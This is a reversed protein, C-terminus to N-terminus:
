HTPMVIDTARNVVYMTPLLYNRGKYVMVEGSLTFTVSEGGAPPTDLAADIAALNQCPLLIMPPETHGSAGGDLRAALRGDDTRVIRARRNTLFGALAIRNDPEPAESTSTAAAPSTGAALDSARPRAPGVAKDLEAIIQDISPNAPSPPTPAPSPETPAPALSPAAATAPTTPPAPRDVMPPMSPLLYNRDRYVTVRGAIRYRTGEPLREVSREMAALNSNEALIMPPLTRGGLEQDFVVYWRGSKGKVIQGRANTIYSGERLLAPVTPLGLDAAAPPPLGPRVPTLAPQTNGPVLVPRPVAEAPPDPNVPEITMPGLPQKAPEDDALLPLALAAAAFCPGLVMALDRPRTTMRSM